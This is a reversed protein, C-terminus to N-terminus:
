KFLNSIGGFAKTGEYEDPNEARHKYKARLSTPANPIDGQPVNQQLKSPDFAQDFSQEPPLNYTNRSMTRTGPVNINGLQKDIPYAEISARRSYRDNPLSGDIPPPVPIGKGQTSADTSNSSPTRYNMVDSPSEAKAPMTTNNPIEPTTTTTTSQAQQVPQVQPSPTQGPSPQTSPQVPSVVGPKAEQTDPATPPQEVPIPQQQPAQSKGYYFAGILGGLALAGGIVTTIISGLSAGGAAAPAAVFPLFETLLQNAKNDFKNSIM